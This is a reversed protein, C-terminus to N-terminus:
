SEFMIHGCKYIHAVFRKSNNWLLACHAHTYICQWRKPRKCTYYQMTVEGGSLNIKLIIFIHLFLM